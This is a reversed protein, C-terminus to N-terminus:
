KGRRKRTVPAQTKITIILQTNNRNGRHDSMLAKTTLSRSLPLSLSLSLSVSVSLYLFLSLILVSISFSLSISLLCVCYKLVDLNCMSGIRDLCVCECNIVVDQTIVRLNTYTDADKGIIMAIKKALSDRVM